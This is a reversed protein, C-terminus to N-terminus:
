RANQYQALARNPRCLNIPPSGEYAPMAWLQENGGPRNVQVQGLNIDMSFPQAPPPLVSRVRIQSPMFYGTLADRSFHDINAVAMLQGRPDYIRQEVILGQRGEVIIERKVPGQPTQRVNEVMYGRGVVPMPGRYEGNPDLYTLGFAEVVLHPDVALERSIPSSAFEAHRCYYVGPPDNRRIWFWFLEDNSGLDIERGTGIPLGAVLRLRMSQEFALNGYLKPYDTM